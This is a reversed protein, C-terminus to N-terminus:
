VIGSIGSMGTRADSTVGHVSPRGGNPPPAPITCRVRAGAGPRSLIEFSGGPMEVRERCSALGIHGARLAALRQDTTFGRGDDSVVLVLSGDVRSLEVTARSARAHETTNALLERTLSVVLQDHVGIADPAVKIQVEYGGRTAYQEGITALASPLDLHDLLYPHLDRVVSRLQELALQLTREARDLAGADGARADAM